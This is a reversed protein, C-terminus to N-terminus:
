CRDNKQEHLPSKQLLVAGFGDISADTHLETEHQQHFIKLVPKQTILIKLRNFADLQQDGFQIKADQKTMDSLPKAIQSFNAIFKRFYGVLGLFGQLQKLNTPVPFSTVAHTKSLSPSIKQNEIIHGLYEIKTKLFHCKKFNILLEYESCRKLVEIINEVAEKEPKAPIIIDDRFVANVHRQFVSPSNSLGFPVPLFQFQGNHTVFSTYKRSGEEIGVHFFGNRLDISSFIRADQLRDLQDEIL